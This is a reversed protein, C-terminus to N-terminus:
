RLPEPYLDLGGLHFYIAARFRDRNRFGRATYKLWQIKANIGESRANTVGLVIANVIGNLHRKIMAAVKRIPELLPRDGEGTGRVACFSSEASPPEFSCEAWETTKNGNKANLTAFGRARETSATAAKPLLFVWQGEQARKCEVILRVSDQDRALVLDIFSAKGTEPDTWPHERALVRWGHQSATTEVLDAVRLQFPFGSANTIKLLEKDREKSM